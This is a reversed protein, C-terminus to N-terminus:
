ALIEDNASEFTEIADMFWANGNAKENEFYQLSGKKTKIFSM